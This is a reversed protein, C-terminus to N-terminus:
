TGLAHVITLQDAASGVVRVLALTVGAKEFAALRQGLDAPRTAVTLADVTEDPIARDLAAPGAEFAERIVARDLPHPQFKFLYDNGNALILAVQPKVKALAEARTAAVATIINCTVELKAPDRGIATAAARARAVAHAVYDPSAAAGLSVGDGVEGAVRLMGDRVAAVYIPVPAPAVSGMRVGSATFAGGRVDAHGGELLARVITVADRVSRAPARTDGGLRAIQDANGLGLMLRVRPGYTERLTAVGMAIQAPHRYHPSIAGVGVTLRRTRELLAAAVVMADRHGLHEGVWACELGHAEAAQVLAVIEAIPARGDFTIGYRM